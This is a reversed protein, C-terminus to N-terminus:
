VKWGLHRQLWRWLVASDVALYAIVCHREQYGIVLPLGPLAYLVVREPQKPFDPRSGAKWFDVFPEIMNDNLPLRRVGTPFKSEFHSVPLGLCSANEASAAPQATTGESTQLAAFLAIMALRSMM